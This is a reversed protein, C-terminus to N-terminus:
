LPPMSHLRAYGQPRGYKEVAGNQEEGHAVLDPIRGAGASAQFHRAFKWGFGLDEERHFGGTDEEGGGNREACGCPGGRVGGREREGIERTRVALLRTRAPDRLLATHNMERALARANQNRLLLVRFERELPLPLEGLAAVVTDFEPDGFDAALFPEADLILHNVVVFMGVSEAAAAVVCPADVVEHVGRLVLDELGDAFPVGAADHHLVALDLVVQISLQAGGGVRFGVVPLGADRLALELVLFAERRAVPLEHEGLM